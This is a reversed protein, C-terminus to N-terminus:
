TKTLRTVKVVNELLLQATNEVHLLVALVFTAYFGKNQAACVFHMESSLRLESSFFHSGYMGFVVVSFM